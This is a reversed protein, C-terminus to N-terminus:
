TDSAIDREKRFGGVVATLEGGWLLLSASLNIWLLFIIVSALAGYTRTYSALHAIYYTFAEKLLSWLTGGVVGGIAAARWPITAAPLLWYVAFFAFVTLTWPLMTRTLFGNVVDYVPLARLPALTTSDIFRDATSLVGEMVVSAVLVVSMVAVVAVALLKRVAFPRRREVQFVHDLGSEMTSFVRSATWLVLALYGVGSWVQEHVLRVQNMLMPPMGYLLSQLLQETRTEAVDSGLALAGVSVLLTALPLFSLMGFYAIVTARDSCRDRHYNSSARFVAKAASDLSSIVPAGVM